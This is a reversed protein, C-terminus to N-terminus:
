SKFLVDGHRNHSYPCYAIAVAGSRSLARQMRHERLGGVRGIEQEQGAVHRVDFLQFYRSALSSGCPAIVPSCSSVQVRAM